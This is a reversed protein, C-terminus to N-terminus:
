KGDGIGYDIKMPKDTGIRMQIISEPTTGKLLNGLMELAFLAKEETKANLSFLQDKPLLIDVTGVDGEGKAALGKESATIYINNAMLQVDKLLEKFQKAVVNVEAKYEIKPDKPPETISNILNLSFHRSTDGEM